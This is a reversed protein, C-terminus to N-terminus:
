RAQSRKVSRPCWRTVMMADDCRGSPLLLLPLPLPLLTRISDEDPNDPPHTEHLYRHTYTQTNIQFHRYNNKNTHVHVVIWIERVWQTDYGQIYRECMRGVECERVICVVVDMLLFLRLLPRRFVFCHTNHALTLSAM